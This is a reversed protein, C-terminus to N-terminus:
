ATLAEPQPLPARTLPVEVTFRSGHGPESRVLVRGGHVEALHKVISLGLGVGQTQRRLESGVRYFREFIREQEERKIGPGCDEVWLFVRDPSFELGVTVASGGPSHKVANDILNVLLRQLATGDANVPCAEGCQTFEIRVDRESGCPQMVRITEGVLACLDTAEFEFHERGQERRSFDLVNEIVASLRRCEQGMFRLYQRLKETGPPDGHELEEAMLRVSAIPARLEHSVSSVFNSKMESLQQQRRFARWAAFFGIMVSCASVAILTGFRLTRARRQAAFNAPDTLFVEVQV